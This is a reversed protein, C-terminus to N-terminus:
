KFNNLENIAIKVVTMQLEADEGDNLIWAASLGSWAIVWNLLRKEDLGAEAAILKIQRSLRGPSVATQIDPNCFINAFDFGREGFLAKPDIAVWEGRGSDLINEYHIDGHLVVTEIPTSLLRGAVESCKVFIGGYRHAAPKLANFWETLPILEKIHKCQAAHLKAAVDCIIQNARDENGNLVMQKLSGQGVAREMLLANEDHELVPASGKGNWCIMLASGRCEEISIPIKLMAKVGKYVVPQLLSSRTKFADGDDLLNWTRKAHNLKKNWETLDQDAM